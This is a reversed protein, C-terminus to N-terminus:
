AQWDLRGRSSQPKAGGIRFTPTRTSRFPISMTEARAQEAANWRHSHEYREVYKGGPMPDRVRFRALKHAVM